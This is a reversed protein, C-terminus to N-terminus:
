HQGDLAERAWKPISIVIGWSRLSKAPQYNTNIFEWIDPLKVYRPSTNAGVKFHPIIGRTIWQRLVRQDIGTARSANAITYQQENM